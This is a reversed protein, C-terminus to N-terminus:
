KKDVDNSELFSAYTDYETYGENVDNVKGNGVYYVMPTAPFDTEFVEDLKKIDDVDDQTVNETDFYYLTYDYENVSKQLNPLMQRCYGCTSRGTYVFYKKKKDKVMDIFEDKDIEKFMSVDYESDETAETTETETSTTNKSRYQGAVTNAYVAIFILTILIAVMVCFQAIPLYVKLIKECDKTNSEKKVVEKKEAKAPKVFTAEEEDDFEDDIVEELEEVVEKEEKKVEVKKAKKNNAM